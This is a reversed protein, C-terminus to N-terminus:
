ISFICQVRRAEQKSDKQVGPSMVPAWPSCSGVGELPRGKDPLTVTMQLPCRAATCVHGEGRPPMALPCAQLRELPAVSPSGLSHAASVPLLLCSWRRQKFEEPLRQQHTKSQKSTRARGQSSKFSKSRRSSQFQAKGQTVSGKLSLPSPFLRRRQSPHRVRQWSGRLCLLDSSQPTLFMGWMVLPSPFSQGLDGSARGRQQSVEWM